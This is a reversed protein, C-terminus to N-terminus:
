KRAALALMKLYMEELDFETPSLGMKNKRHAIQITTLVSDIGKTTDGLIMVEGASIAAWKQLMVTDRANLAAFFQKSNENAYEFAFNSYAEAAAGDVNASYNLFDSLVQKRNQTNAGNM